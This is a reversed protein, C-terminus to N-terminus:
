LVIVGENLPCDHCLKHLRELETPVEMVTQTHNEFAAEDEAQTEYRNLLERVRNADWGHSFKNAKMTRQRQRRRRRYAALPKGRLDYATIVFVEHRDPDPVFIVRLYRGARTQGIAM